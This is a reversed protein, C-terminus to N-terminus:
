SGFIDSARLGTRHFEDIIEIVEPISRLDCKLANLHSNITNKSRGLLKSAEWDDFGYIFCFKGALYKPNGHEVKSLIHKKLIKNLREEFSLRDYTVEFREQENGQSKHYVDVEFDKLRESSDTPYYENRSQVKNARQVYHRIRQYLNTTIYPEIEYIKWAYDPDYTYIRRHKSPDQTYDKPLMKRHYLPIYSKILDVFFLFSQQVIDEIDSYSYMSGLRIAYHYSVREFKLWLEYLEKQNRPRRAKEMLKDYVIPPLDAYDRPQVVIWNRKARAPPTVLEETQEFM